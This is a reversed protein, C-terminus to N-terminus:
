DYIFQDIVIVNIGDINEAEKTKPENKADINKVEQECTATIEEDDEILIEGDEEDSEAPTETDELAFTENVRSLQKSVFAKMKEAVAKDKHAFTLMLPVELGGAPMPSISANTSVVTGTIVGGEHLFYYVYRSIERPM